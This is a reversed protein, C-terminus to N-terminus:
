PCLSCLFVPDVRVTDLINLSIKNFKLTLILWSYLQGKLPQFDIFKQLLGTQEKMFDSRMLPPFTLYSDRVGLFNQFPNHPAM